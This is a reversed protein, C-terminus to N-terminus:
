SFLRIFEPMVVFASLQIGDAGTGGKRASSAADPACAAVFAAHLRLAADLDESALMIAGVGGSLTSTGAACARIMFQAARAALLERRYQPGTRKRPQRPACRILLPSLLNHTPPSLTTILGSQRPRVGAERTRVPAWRPAHIISEGGEAM